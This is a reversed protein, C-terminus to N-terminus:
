WVAQWAVQLCICCHQEGLAGKIMVHTSIDTHQAVCCCGECSCTQLLCRASGRSSSGACLWQATRLAAAPQLRPQRQRESAKNTTLLIQEGTVQLTHPTAQMRM